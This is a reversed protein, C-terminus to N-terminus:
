GQDTKGTKIASTALQDATENEPHGSHGKVKIFKLDRFKKKLDMISEILDQNKKPKWGKSLVGIAYSSDTFVRIPLSPNKIALLGTRIAELEAMNNTARGIYQSIEKRLDKCQLVIGIGAPGPNGSAAGDTYVFVANGPDEGSEPM